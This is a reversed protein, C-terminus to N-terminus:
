HSAWFKLVVSGPWALCPKPRSTRADDVLKDVDRLSLEVPTAFLSSFLVRCLGIKRELRNKAREHDGPLHNLAEFPPRGL